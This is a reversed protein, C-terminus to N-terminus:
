WNGVLFAKTKKFGIRYWFPASQETITASVTLAGLQQFKSLIHRVLSTGIGRKQYTPHVSLQHILARSGDYVGRIFGVIHRNIECVLFVAAKCNVVRQMAESGDVESFSFQNNLKIIEVIMNIDCSRAERIKM